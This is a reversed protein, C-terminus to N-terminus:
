TTPSSTASCCARIPAPVRVRAPRRSCTPSRTARPSRTPEGNNAARGSTSRRGAPEHRPRVGHRHVADGDHEAFNYVQVINPHDVQALFRLESAAIVDIDGTNLLGKLVVWRSDVRTTARSTSGASAVTPSAATSRTSAASSTGVALKPSFSFPHRCKPCFGETRGPEGDRGRGVPQNCGPNGCFRRSEAISPNTLVADVADHIVPPPVEVRQGGVRDTGTAAVRADGHRPHREATREDGADAARRDARVRCARERCGARPRRVPQLLGREIDGPPDCEPRTCKMPSGKRASVRRVGAASLSVGLREGRRPRHARHLARSRRSRASGHGRSGRRPRIRTGAASYADLRGRLQDRDRLRTRAERTIEGAQDLLADVSARFTRLEDLAMRTRGETALGRIRELRGALEGDPSPPTAASPLLVKARANDQAQAADTLAQDVTELLRESDRLEDQLRGSLENASALSQGLDAVLHELAVVDPETVSLPDTALAETLAGVRQDLAVLETDGADFPLARNVRGQVETIRPLLRDWVVGVAVVVDKARGFAETM